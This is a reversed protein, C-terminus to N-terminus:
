PTPLQYPGRIAGNVAGTFGLGGEMNSWTFNAPILGMNALFDFNSRYLATAYRQFEPSLSYLTFVYSTKVSVPITGPDQTGTEPKEKGDSGGDPLMDRLRDLITSDFSNIYFSYVQGNFQKKGVLTLPEYDPGGLYKGDFNIQIFDELDMGGSDAATLVYGPTLYGLLTKTSGDAYVVDNRQLIRIGFHEDDAPSHDLTMNVQVADITDVQIREWTIDTIHPKPPVTTAGTAPNVGDARVSVEIRAGEKIDLWATSSRSDSERTLAVSQGDVKLDIETQPAAKHSSNVARAYHTTINVTGGDAVCQVYIRDEGSQKIDFPIECSATVALLALLKGIHKM